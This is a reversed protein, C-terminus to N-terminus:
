APFHALLRESTFIRRPKNDIADQVGPVILPHIHQIFTHGRCLPDVCCYLYSTSEPHARQLQSIKNTQIRSQM